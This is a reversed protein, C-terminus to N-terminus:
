ICLFTHEGTAEAVVRVGQYAADKHGDLACTQVALKYAPYDKVNQGPGNLPYYGGHDTIKVTHGNYDTVMPPDSVDVCASVTFCAILATAAAKM